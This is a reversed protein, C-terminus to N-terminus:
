LRAFSALTALATAAMLLIIGGEYLRDSAARRVPAATRPLSAPADEDWEVLALHRRATTRPATEQTNRTHQTTAM